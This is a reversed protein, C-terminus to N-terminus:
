QKEGRHISRYWIGVETRNKCKTKRMIRSVYCTVTGTTLNLEEAIEANKKGSAVLCAVPRLCDSLRAASYVRSISFSPDVLSAYESFWAAFEARNHCGTKRLIEHAIQKAYGLCRNLDSEIEKNVKGVAILRAARLETPTFIEGMFSVFFRDSDLTFSEPSLM